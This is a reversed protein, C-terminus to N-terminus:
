VRIAYNQAATSTDSVSMPTKTVSLQHCNSRDSTPQPRSPLSTTTVLTSPPQMVSAHPVHGRYTMYLNMHRWVRSVKDLEREYDDKDTKNPLIVAAKWNITLFSKLDHLIPSGIKIRLVTHGYNKYAQIYDNILTSLRDYKTNLPRYALDSRRSLGLAGYIQNYRIGLVVHRYTISNFRTKFSINFRDVGIMGTTLYVAILFAELCKIPLAETMMHRAADMLGSIPRNTNIEFFQMGTYNYELRQIYTQIQRLKEAVNLRNNTALHYPPEIYTVKPYNLKQDRLAKIETTHKPYQEMCFTWMRESCRDSLPLGDRNVYFLLVKGSRMAEYGATRVSCCAFAITSTKRHELKTITLYTKMRLCM